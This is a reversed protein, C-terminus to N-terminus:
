SLLWIYDDPQVGSPPNQGDQISFVRDLYSLNANRVIRTKDEILMLADIIEQVNM